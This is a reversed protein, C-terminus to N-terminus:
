ITRYIKVVPHVKYGPKEKMTIVLIMEDNQSVTMQTNYDDTEVWEYEQSPESFVVDMETLEPDRVILLSIDRRRQRNYIKGRIGYNYDYKDWLV